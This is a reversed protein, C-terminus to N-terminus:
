YKSFNSFQRLPCGSGQCFTQGHVGEDCNIDPNLNKFCEVSLSFRRAVEECSGSQGDCENCEHEPNCTEYCPEADKMCKDNKANYFPTTDVPLDRSPNLTASTDGDHSMENECGVLRTYSQDMHDPGLWLDFHYIGSRQWDEECEACSDDMIFYKKYRPIYLKTGREVSSPGAAFTIPKDYTGTGLSHPQSGPPCNDPYGYFTITRINIDQGSPSPSPSPSPGPSPSPSPSGCWVGNDNDECQAKTSEKSCKDYSKGPWSAHYCNGADQRICSICQKTGAAVLPQVDHVWAGAAPLKLPTRARDRPCGASACALLTVAVVILLFRRM